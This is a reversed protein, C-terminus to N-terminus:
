LKSEKKTNILRKQKQKKIVSQNEKHQGSFNFTVNIVEQLMLLNCPDSM